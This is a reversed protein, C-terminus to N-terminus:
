CNQFQFGLHSLSEAVGIWNLLSTSWELVFVRFDSLEINQNIRGSDDVLGRGVGKGIFCVGWVVIEDNLIM